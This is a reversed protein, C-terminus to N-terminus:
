EALIEEVRNIKKQSFNRHGNLWSNLYINTCPIKKAFELQTMCREKVRERQEDQNNEM